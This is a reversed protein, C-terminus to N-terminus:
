DGLWRAQFWSRTVEQTRANANSGNNIINVYDTSGNLYLIKRVQQIISSISGAIVITSGNKQIGMNAEGNRYVDYSAAIEWYGAKLPTFTYTSTNFWASSVNVSNNM